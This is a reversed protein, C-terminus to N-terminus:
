VFMCVGESNMNALTPIVLSPESLCVYMVYLCIYMVFMCVNCVFM